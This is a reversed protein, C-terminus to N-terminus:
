KEPARKLKFVTFGVVQTTTTTSTTVCNMASGHVVVRGSQISWVMNLCGSNRIIQSKSNEVSVFQEGLAQPNIIIVIIIYVPCTCASNRIPNHSEGLPCLIRVNASQTLRRKHTVHRPLPM